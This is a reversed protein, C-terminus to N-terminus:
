KWFVESYGVAKGFIPIDVSGFAGLDITYTQRATFTIKEDIQIKETGSIYNTDIEIVPSLSYTDAMNALTTQIESTVEGAVELRRIAKEAYNNLDAKLIFVPLTEMALLLFLSLVFAGVGAEILGDYGKQSKWIFFLRKKGKRKKM